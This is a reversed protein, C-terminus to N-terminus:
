FRRGASGPAPDSALERAVEQRLDQRYSDLLIGLAQEDGQALRELLANREAATSM